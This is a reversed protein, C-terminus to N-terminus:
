IHMRQTEAKTHAAQRQSGVSQGPRGGTHNTIDGRVRLFSGLSMQKQQSPYFNLFRLTLEGTNDAILVVLQRKPRFKVESHIVKGQTQITEQGVDQIAQEITKLSTEDEYRIPLYLAFDAPTNLGLKTLTSEKKTM